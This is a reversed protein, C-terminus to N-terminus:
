QTFCSVTVLHRRGVTARSAKVPHLDGEFGGVGATAGEDPEVRNCEESGPAEGVSMEITISGIMRRAFIGAAAARTRRPSWTIACPTAPTRLRPELARILM